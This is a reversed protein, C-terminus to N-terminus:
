EYENIGLLYAYFLSFVVVTAQRELISEFQMACFCLICFSIMLPNNFQKKIVPFLLIALLLIGSFLGSQLMNELFQNHPKKRNEIMLTSKDKEYQNMIEKDVDGIGVGLLLNKKLLNAGNKFSEVRMSVSHWNRDRNSSLVNLDDMTLTIRNKFSNSSYYGVGLGIALLIPFYIFWRYMKQNLVYIIVLTIIGCYCALLGTRVSMIHLCYFCVVGAILYLFQFFSNNWAFFIIRYAALIIALALIISFEIHYIHSMVPISKNQLVMFDLDANHFYYHAVSLSAIIAAMYCFILEFILKRQIDIKRFSLYLLPIFLIPSKLLIKQLSTNLDNSYIISFVTLFYYLIFLLFWKKHELNRTKFLFNILSLACLTGIFISTLAVSIPLFLVLL